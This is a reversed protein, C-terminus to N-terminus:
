RIRIGMANAGKAVLLKYINGFLNLAAAVCREQKTLSTKLFIGAEGQIKIKITKDLAISSIICLKM